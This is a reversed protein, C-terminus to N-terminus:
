DACSQRRLEAARQSFAQVANQSTFILWDFRELSRLAEDFPERNAPVCFGMVPFLVPEAGAEALAQLLEASQERARTVLVRKGALPKNKDATM